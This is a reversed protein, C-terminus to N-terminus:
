AEPIFEYGKWRFIVDEVGLLAVMFFQFGSEKLQEM